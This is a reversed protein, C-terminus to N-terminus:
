HGTSRISANIASRVAARLALFQASASRTRVTNCSAPITNSSVALPVIQRRSHFVSKVGAWNLFLIAFEKHFCPKSLRIRSPTYRLRTACRSQSCPTPPEFGEVGVLVLNPQPLSYRRHNTVIRGYSM